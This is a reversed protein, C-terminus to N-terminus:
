SIDRRFFALDFLGKADLLLYITLREDNPKGSPYLNFEELLFVLCLNGM